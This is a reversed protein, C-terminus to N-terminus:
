RFTKRPRGFIPFIMVCFLIGAVILHILISNMPWVTLAEFGSYAKPDQNSIRMGDPDSELFTVRTPDGCEDILKAAIKRNEHNVLPLNLISSGNLVVIVQGEGWEYEKTLRFILPTEESGLLLETQLNAAAGADPLKMIGAVTINSAESDVFSSWTGTTPTVPIFNQTNKISLWECELEKGTLSRTYAHDSQARALNRRSNIFREGNTQLSHQRWYEVSAEYDRAVYILTRLRYDGTGLWETELYEIEKQTPLEFSNPTWVIVHSRKLRPSLLRWTTVRHGRQSFMEAFVSIGNVSTRARSRRRGYITSIDSVGYSLWPSIMGYVVAAILLTFFAGILLQRPNRHRLTM